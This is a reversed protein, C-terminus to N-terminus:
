IQPNKKLNTDAWKTVTIRTSAGAVEGDWLGEQLNSLCMIKCNVLFSESILTSPKPMPFM